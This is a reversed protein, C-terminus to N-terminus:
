ASVTGKRLVEVHFDSSIVTNKATINNLTNPNDPGWSGARVDPGRGWAAM